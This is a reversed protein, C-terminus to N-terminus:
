ASDQTTNVAVNQVYRGYRGRGLCPHPSRTPTDFFSFAKSGIGTSWDCALHHHRLGLARLGSYNDPKKAWRVLLGRFRNMWSHTREVVWRRARYGLERIDRQEEGRSRLHATFGLEAVLERVAEYDYGKDLCLGQPRNPTPLPRPVMLESLTAEALKMDPRNAGDVVM